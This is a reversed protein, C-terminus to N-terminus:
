TKLKELNSYFVKCKFLLVYFDPNEFSNLEGMCMVNIELKMM